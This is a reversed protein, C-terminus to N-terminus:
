NIKVIFFKCKFKQWKLKKEVKLLLIYLNKNLYM